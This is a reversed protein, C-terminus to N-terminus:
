GNKVERMDKILEGIQQQIEPVEVNNIPYIYSAHIKELKSLFVEFEEKNIWEATIKDPFMATEITTGLEDALIMVGRVIEVM